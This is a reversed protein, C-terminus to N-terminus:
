GQGAERHLQAGKGGGLFKAECDPGLLFSFLRQSLFANGNGTGHHNINCVDEGKLPDERRRWM